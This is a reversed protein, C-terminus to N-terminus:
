QSVNQCCADSEPRRRRPRRLWGLQGLQHVQARVLTNWAFCHRGDQFVEFGLIGAPHVHLEDVHPLVRLGALRVLDLQDRRLDEEVGRVLLTEPVLAEKALLVDQGLPLLEPHINLGFCGGADHPFCGTAASVRGRPATQKM